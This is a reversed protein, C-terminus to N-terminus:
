FRIIEEAIREPSLVKEIVGQEVAVRNMGFIVSSAEDQAITLAGRLKMAGIGDVGDTGMGTMIVGMADKGYAESVSLFLRDISPVHIEGSDARKL